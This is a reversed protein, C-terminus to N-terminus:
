SRHALQQITRLWGRIEGAPDQQALLAPTMADVAERNLWKKIRNITRRRHRRSHKGPGHEARGYLSDWVKGPVDESESFTISVGSVKQIAAPHLYNELSRKKMVVAVAKERQNIEAATSERLESL